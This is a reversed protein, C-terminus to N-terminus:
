GDHLLGVLRELTLTRPPAVCSTLFVGSSESPQGSAVSVFLLLLFTEM